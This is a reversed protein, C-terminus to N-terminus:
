TSNISDLKRRNIVTCLLFSIILLLLCLPYNQYGSQKSKEKGPLYSSSAMNTVFSLAEYNTHLRLTKRLVKRHSLLLM